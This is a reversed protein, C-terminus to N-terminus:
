KIYTGKEKLLLYGKILCELFRLRPLYNKTIRGQGMETCNEVGRASLQM